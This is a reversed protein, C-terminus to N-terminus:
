LVFAYYGTIGSGYQWLQFKEGYINYTGDFKGFPTQRHNDVWIMVETQWNNLWIDYAARAIYNDAASPMHQTFESRLYGLDTLSPASTQYYPVEVDPYTKVDTTPGQKSTVGWHKYSDAWITQPGADGSWEDNNVQYGDSPWSALRATSSWTPSSAAPPARAPAPAPPALALWGPSARASPWPPSSADACLQKGIKRAYSLSLHEPAL